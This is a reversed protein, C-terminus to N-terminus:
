PLDEESVARSKDVLELVPTKTTRKEADATIKTNTTEQQLSRM